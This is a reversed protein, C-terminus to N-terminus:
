YQLYMGAAIVEGGVAIVQGAWYFGAWGDLYRHAIAGFAGAEHHVVVMEVLAWAIVLAVLGCLVYAIITALGANSIALTSGPFLGTGIAGGIGIMALQRSNLQGALGHPM